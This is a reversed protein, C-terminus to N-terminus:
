ARGAQTRHAWTAAVVERTEAASLHRHQRDCESWMAELAALRDDLTFADGQGSAFDRMAEIMTRRAAAVEAAPREIGAPDWASRDACLIDGGYVHLGATWNRSPNAASHVADASLVFVEGECVDAGPLEILGDRSRRYLRNVECGAYVGVVAWMRHEHTSSLAGSPWLIRQVTLEPSSFLTLPELTVETGLADDIASGHSTARTVVEAVAGAADADVVAARCSEVFQAPDFTM